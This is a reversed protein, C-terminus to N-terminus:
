QFIQKLSNEIKHNDAQGNLGEQLALMLLIRAKQPSLDGAFLAGIKALSQGGGPYGYVPQVAGNPVRSAIVVKIGAKIAQRIGELLSLNVNGAGLGQVVIGKAGAAIAAKILLDDAGVYASVIDVRCLQYDFPKDASLPIHQRGTPKRSFLVHDGDVSGLFGNDGSQFSNIATTHTKSVDRAASIQHNMVIMVGRDRADESIAVRLADLMNDLGDSGEDSDSRQAGFLIVPKSSNITLDLFFGTEEMTDTGHSIIAGAIDERALVDCIHRQLAIWDSPQFHASPKNSFNEIELTAYQSLGSARSVLDQGQIAPVPGDGNESRQMAITGGTAIYSIVPLSDPSSNKLRKEVPM